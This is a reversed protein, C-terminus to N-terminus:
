RAPGHCEVCHTQFFPVAQRRFGHEDPTSQAAIAVVACDPLFPPGGRRGDDFRSENWRFSTVRRERRADISEEQSEGCNGAL